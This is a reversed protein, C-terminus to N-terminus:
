SLCLLPRFHVLEFLSFCMQSVLGEFTAYISYKLQKCIDLYVLYIYDYVCESM